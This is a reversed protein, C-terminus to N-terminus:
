GADEPLRVQVSHWKAPVGSKFDLVGFEDNISGIFDPKGAYPYTKHKMAREISSPVPKAWAIFEQMAQHYGTYIEPVDPAESLGAYHGMALAFILHLDQGREAAGPTYYDCGGSVVDCVQSVSWYRGEEDGYQRPKERDVSLM